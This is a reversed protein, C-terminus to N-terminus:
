SLNVIFTIFEYLLSLIVCRFMDIRGQEIKIDFWKYEM